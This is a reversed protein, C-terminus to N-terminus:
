RQRVLTSCGAVADEGPDLYCTEIVDPGVVRGFVIGDDDVDVWYFKGHHARIIGIFEETGGAHTVTGKFRRGKQDTITITNEREVYGDKKTIQDSYGKWTGTLDVVGGGGGGGRAAASGAFGAVAILCAACAATMTLTRM